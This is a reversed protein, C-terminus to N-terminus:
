NKCVMVWRKSSTLLKVCKTHIIKSLIFNQKFNRLICSDSSLSVYSKKRSLAYIAYKNLSYFRILTFRTFPNLFTVFSASPPFPQGRYQLFPQHVLDYCRKASYFTCIPCYAGSFLLLTFEKYSRPICQFSCSRIIFQAKPESNLCWVDFLKTTKKYLPM